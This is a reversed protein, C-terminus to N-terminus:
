HIYMYYMIRVSFTVLLHWQVPEPSPFAPPGPPFFGLSWLPRDSCFLCAFERYRPFVRTVVDRDIKTKCKIPQSIPAFKRSWDCVTTLCFWDLWPNSEVSLQFKSKSETMIEKTRTKRCEISFAGMRLPSRTPCCLSSNCVRKTEWRNQSVSLIQLLPLWATSLADLSSISNDDLRLERLLVSNVVRPPQSSYFSTEEFYNDCSFILNDVHM